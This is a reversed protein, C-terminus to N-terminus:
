DSLVAGGPSPVARALGNSVPIADGPCIDARARDIAALITLAHPLFREGAPTLAMGRPHRDFLAVGLEDELGHIRRTLPPQSIHLRRAARVVAGEEAVAVFSQIQEISM